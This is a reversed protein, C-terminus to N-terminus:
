QLRDRGASQGVSKQSGELTELSRHLLMWGLTRRAGCSWLDHVATLRRWEVVDASCVELHISCHFDGAKISPIAGLEGGLMYADFRSGKLDVHVAMSTVEVVQWDKVHRHRSIVVVPSNDVTGVGAMDEGQPAASTWTSAYLCIEDLHNEETGAIWESYGRRLLILM